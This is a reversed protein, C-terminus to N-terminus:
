GHTTACCRPPVPRAPRHRSCPACRPRSAEGTALLILERARYLTGLGVTLARGGGPLTVVRVGSALRAPPEDLAVHGDEGLGLVALDIPARRWWRRTGRPKPRSIPPVDTSRACRAWRSGACSRECIRATAAAPASSLQLVTAAASPLEGAAAHARLSAFMASPARGPEFLLRAQPRAILRNLVLEAALSASM